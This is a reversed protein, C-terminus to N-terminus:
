RPSDPPPPPNGAPRDLSPTQKPPARPPPPTPNADISQPVSSSSPSSPSPKLLSRLKDAAQIGLRRGAEVSLLRFVEEPDHFGQAEVDVSVSLPERYVVTNSAKDYVRLTGTADARAKTKAVVPYALCPATTCLLCPSLIGLTVAALGLRWNTSADDLAVNATKVEVSVLHNALAPNNRAFWDMGMESRAEIPATASLDQIRGGNVSANFGEAVLRLADNPAIEGTRVITTQPYYITGAYGGAGYVPAAGVTTVAKTTQVGGMMVRGDYAGLFSVDAIGSLSSAPATQVSLPACALSSLLGIVVLLFLRM